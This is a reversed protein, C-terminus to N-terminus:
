TEGLFGGISVRSAKSATGSTTSTAGGNAQPSVFGLTM